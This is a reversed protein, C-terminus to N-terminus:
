LLYQFDGICMDYVSIPLEKKNLICKEIVESLNRYEDTQSSNRQLEEMTTMSRLSVRGDFQTEYM